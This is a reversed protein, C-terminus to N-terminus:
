FMGKFLDNVIKTAEKKNRLYQDFEAIDKETVKGNEGLWDLFLRHYDLETM